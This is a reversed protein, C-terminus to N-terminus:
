GTCANEATNRSDQKELRATEEENKPIDIQGPGPNAPYTELYKLFCRSIRYTHRM